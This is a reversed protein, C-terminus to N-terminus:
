ARLDCLLSIDVASVWLVAAPLCLIAPCPVPARGSVTVPHLCGILWVSVSYFLQRMTSLSLPLLVIYPTLYLGQWCDSTSYPELLSSSFRLFVFLCFVPFRQFFLLVSAPTSLMRHWWPRLLGNPFLQPVQQSISTKSLLWKIIAVCIGCVLSCSHLHVTALLHGRLKCLTHISKIILESNYEVSLPFPPKCCKCCNVLKM